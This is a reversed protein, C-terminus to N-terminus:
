RGMGMSGILNSLGEKGVKNQSQQSTVAMALTRLAQTREVWRASIGRGSVAAHSRCDASRSPRHASPDGAVSRPELGTM